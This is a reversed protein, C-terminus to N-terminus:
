AEEPRSPPYTAEFSAVADAVDGATAEAPITARVIRVSRALLAHTELQTRMREATRVAFNFTSALVLGPSPERVVELTLRPAAASRDLFYLARLPRPGAATPVALRYAEDDSGLVEGLTALRPVTIREAEAFRVSTLGAGPHARVTAGDPAVDIALVDDTLFPAGRLALNVALSSKGTRSNGVFGVAGGGLEVASAHLVEYGQLLAAMPLAQGVLYCQWRWEPACSPAALVTQGGPRVLYSGLGAWEIHCGAEPHTDMRMGVRGDPARHHYLASAEEAPWLESLVTPATLLLKAAPPEPRGVAPSPSLLGPAAFDAALRLGFAHGSWELASAEPRNGQHEAVSTPSVRATM